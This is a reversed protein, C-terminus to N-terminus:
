KQVKDLNDCKNALTFIFMINRKGPVCITFTSDLKEIHAALDKDVHAKEIKKKGM